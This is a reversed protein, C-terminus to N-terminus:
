IITVAPYEALNKGESELSVFSSRHNSYYIFPVSKDLTHNTPLYLAKSPNSSAPLHLRFPVAAPIPECVLCLRSTLYIHLILSELSSGRPYLYRGLAFTSTTSKNTSHDNVHHTLNTTTNSLLAGAFFPRLRLRRSSPSTTCGM